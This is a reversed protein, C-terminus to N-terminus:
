VTLGPVEWSVMGDRSSGGSTARAPVIARRLAKSGDIVFLMYVPLRKAEASATACSNKTPDEGSSGSSAGSSGSSSFGSSGSSGSAGSSAGSSTGDPFESDPESDGCGQAFVTLLLAIASAGVLTHTRSFSHTFGM